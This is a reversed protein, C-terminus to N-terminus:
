RDRHALATITLLIQQTALQAIGREGQWNSSTFIYQFAEGIKNVRAGEREGVAHRGMPGGVLLVISSSQRARRVLLSAALIEAKFNTDFGDSLLNGLGGHAVITGVTTLAVTSVTAVRM